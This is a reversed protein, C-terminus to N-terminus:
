SDPPVIDVIHNYNWFDVTWVTSEDGATPAETIQLRYLEFTDPAIWLKVTMTEPGIMGLSLQNLREGDIKGTLAYLSVGPVEEIEEMGVWQLENLDKELIPQIGVEPDFLAAPNFGWEPPLKQWEGTLFNTEWQIEGISVIQVEAVFGPGIVRITAQARDPAVFDGEARRFSLSQEVNLFAPAGSRDILFHFGSLLKMREVSRLVIEEPDMIEPTSSSCSGVLIPLLMLLVLNRWTVECNMLM